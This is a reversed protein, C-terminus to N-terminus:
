LLAGLLPPGAQTLGDLIAKAVTDEGNKVDEIECRVAQGVMVAAPIWKWPGPPLLLMVGLSPLGMTVLHVPAREIGAKANHPEPGHTGLALFAKVARVEADFGKKAFKTVPRIVGKLM